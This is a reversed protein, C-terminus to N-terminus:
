ENLGVAEGEKRVRKIAQLFPLSGGRPRETRDNSIVAGRSSFMPQDLSIGGRKAFEDAAEPDVGAVANQVISQLLDRSQALGKMLQLDNLGTAGLEEALRQAETDTVAGGSRVNLLINRVSSVLQRMKKGKKTLMAEPVMGTAGFGPIDTELKSADFGHPIGLDKVLFKDINSLSKTLESVKGKSFQQSLFKTQQRLVKPTIKGESEALAKKTQAETRQIEAEGKRLFQKQKKREFETPQPKVRAVVVPRGELDKMQLFPVGREELGKLGAPDVRFLGKGALQKEGLPTLIGKSAAVREAEDRRAQALSMEGQQKRQAVLESQEVAGKIGFVTGVVNLAGALADLQSEKRQPMNVQAM